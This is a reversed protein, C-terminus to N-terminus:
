SDITTVWHLALVSILVDANCCMFCIWAPEGGLAGLSSLNVITITLTICSGIFTRTAMRRLAPNTNHAFSYLRRIPLIFLATLYVNVFVDFVILPFLALKRMGIICLGEENLYAVRYIFNLIMLIVCPVLMGFVNFMFLVNKRRPRRSGHVIYAKEVLFFYILKTTLYCALCLLIGGDCLGRSTNVGVGEQLVATIFVFAFSDIYILLILWNALPLAKWTIVRELRRVFCASLVAITILSLVVTITQGALPI